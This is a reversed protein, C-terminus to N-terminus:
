AIFLNDAPAEGWSINNQAPGSNVESVPGEASRGLVAQQTRQVVRIVVKIFIWYIFKVVKDSSIHPRKQEDPRVGTNAELFHVLALKRASDSLLPPYIESIM